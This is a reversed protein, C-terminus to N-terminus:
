SGLATVFVPVLPYIMESAADTFLSVLGLMIVVVPIHKKNRDM